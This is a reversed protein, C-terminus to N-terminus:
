SSKLGADEPLLMEPPLRSNIRNRCVACHEPPMLNELEEFVIRAARHWESRFIAADTVSDRANRARTELIEVQAALKRRKLARIADVKAGERLAAAVEDPNERVWELLPARHVRQSKFAVCGALKARHQVARPVGWLREAEQQCSAVQRPKTPQRNM